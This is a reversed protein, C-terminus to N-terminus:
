LKKKSEKYHMRISDKIQDSSEGETEEVFLDVMMAYVTQADMNSTDVNYRKKLYQRQQSESMSSLHNMRTDKYLEGGVERTTNLNQRARKTHLKFNNLLRENDQKYENPESRYILGDFWISGMGYFDFLSKQLVHVLRTLQTIDGSKNIEPVFLYCPTSYSSMMMKGINASPTSSINEIYDRYKSPDMLFEDMETIPWLVKAAIIQTNTNSYTTADYKIQNCAIFYMAAACDDRTMLDLGYRLWTRWTTIIVM